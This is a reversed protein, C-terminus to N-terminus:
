KNYQEYYKKGDKIVMTLIEKRNKGENYSVHVWGPNIDDGYEWILQDFELHDKIYDFIEKNTIYDKGDVDLDIASGDNALHQSKKAGGILKNVAATRFFSSIYIFVQFHEVLPEYIKEALVKMRDLQEPTFYNLLGKRKAMDSRIADAYSIHKSVQKM